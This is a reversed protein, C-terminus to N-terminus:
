SIGSNDVARHANAPPSTHFQRQSRAGPPMIAPWRAEIRAPMAELAGPEDTDCSLGYRGTDPAPGDAACLLLRNTARAAADEARGGAPTWSTRYRLALRAAGAAAHSGTLLVRAAFYGRVPPDLYDWVALPDRRVMTGSIPVSRRDPDVVANRAGFEAATAEAYTGRESSFLVNIDEHSMAARMLDCWQRLIAHDGNSNPLDSQILAVHVTPRGFMERLWSARLAAPCFAEDSSNGVVLVWLEDCGAIAAEILLRHGMHPPVFRGIVCGVVQKRAGM